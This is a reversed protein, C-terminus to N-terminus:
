RALAALTVAIRSLVGCSSATAVVDFVATDDALGAARVRAYAAGCLDWPALTVTETLEVLAHDLEDRPTADTEVRDGLLDSVTKRILARRRRDFHDDREQAHAAWKALQDVVGAHMATDLAAGRPPRKSPRLYRPSGPAPNPVCFRDPYDSAVGTADAIRTFHGFLAAQLIAHLVEADSLGGARWAALDTSALAWPQETVGVTLAGVARVKQDEHRNAIARPDVVM